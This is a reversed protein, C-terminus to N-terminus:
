RAFENAYQERYFTAAVIYINYQLPLKNTSTQSRVLDMNAKSDRVANLTGRFKSNSSSLDGTPSIIVTDGIYEKSNTILETIEAASYKKEITQPAEVTAVTPHPQMTEILKEYRFVVLSVSVINLLILFVIIKRQRHM